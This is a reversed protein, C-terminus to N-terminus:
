LQCTIVGAVERLKGVESRRSRPNRHAVLVDGIRGALASRRDFSTAMRPRRNVGSRTRPRGSYHKQWGYIATEFKMQPALRQV